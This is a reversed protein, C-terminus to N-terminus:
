NHHEYLSVYKTLVSGEEPVYWQSTVKSFIIYLTKFSSQKIELSNNSM